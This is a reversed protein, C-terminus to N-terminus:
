RKPALRKRVYGRSTDRRARDFEEALHDILARIAARPDGGCTSIARDVDGEITSEAEIATAAEKPM